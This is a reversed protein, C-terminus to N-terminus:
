KGNTENCVVEKQKILAQLYKRARSLQSKSTSESIGLMEGIEKHSFGDIAYLNFIAKYGEPLSRVMDMLEEADYKRNISFDDTISEAQDLELHNYRKLNQRYNNIATNVIIRRIWGELSGKFNFTDIKEFVKIFGEQLVDEAEMKDKAYRYCVSLLKYAYMEYLERQCALNKKICGKVLEERDL